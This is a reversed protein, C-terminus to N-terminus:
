VCPCKSTPMPSGASILCISCRHDPAQPVQSNLFATLRNEPTDTIIEEFKITVKTKYQGKSSLESLYRHQAGSCARAPGNWAQRAVHLSRVSSLETAHRQQLPASIHCIILLLTRIEKGANNEM